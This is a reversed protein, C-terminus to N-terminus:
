PTEGTVALLEELRAWAAPRDLPEPHRIMANGKELRALSRADMEGAAEAVQEMEAMRGNCHLAIDCGAALADGARQGLGGRLAQMSLDDSVLVGDFGIVGRIIREIAVASTTAPAAEDVARYVVHATMAWPMANLARFPAFDVAELEELPTDVVPLAKHSDVNARGQGPIHKIVPLVGGALMAQCVAEGLGAAMAPTQGAARDGIAPDAGPQPVDLVPVCNVTVGLDTLDAAILRANLRVAEVALDMDGRALAHFRAPAPHQRWHPPKLRAVRGGEQDILVPADQRGICDRLSRVLARVQDVDRCNRAFLIFGAPNQAQFFRREASTLLPGSCGLIMSKM